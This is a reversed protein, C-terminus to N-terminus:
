AVDLFRKLKDNHIVDTLYKSYVPMCTDILKSMNQCNEELLRQCFESEQSNELGGGVLSNFMSCKVVTDNTM